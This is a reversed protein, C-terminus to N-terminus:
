FCTVSCLLIERLRYRLCVDSYVTINSEGQVEFMTMTRLLMEKV